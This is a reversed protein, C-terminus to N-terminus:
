RVQKTVRDIVLFMALGLGVAGSFEPALYGAVGVAASVALQIITVVPITRGSREPVVIPVAIPVAHPM